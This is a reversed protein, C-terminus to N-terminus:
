QLVTAGRATTETVRLWGCDGGSTSSRGESKDDPWYYDLVEDYHGHWEGWKM